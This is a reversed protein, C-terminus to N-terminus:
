HPAAGTKNKLTLAHQLLSHPLACPHTLVLALLRHKLFASAIVKSILDFAKRWEQAQTETAFRLTYANKLAGKLVEQVGQARLILRKFQSLKYKLFV